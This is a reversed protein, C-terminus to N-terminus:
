FSIAEFLSQYRRAVKNWNAIEDSYKKGIKGMQELKSESSADIQSIAKVWGNKSKAIYGSKETENQNAQLIAERTAFCNEDVIVPTNQNWAEYLVRSFSENRSPIAVAKARKLFLNKLPSELIGLDKIHDSEFSCSGTGALALLLNSSKNERRFTQFAEILEPVNKEACKKGLYLIYNSSLVKTANGSLNESHISESIESEIGEYVTHCKHEHTKGFLNEFVLKEGDSNFLIKGCQEFSKSVLRLYAYTEDHLCPQIWVKEKLILALHVTIPFLYPMALIALYDNQNEVAFNILDTSNINNEWYIFENHKSIPYVESSLEEAKFSLLKEVVLDFKKSNRKDVKFRRVNLGSEVKLGRAHFDEDWSHHFSRSCTSWIEIPVGIEQLHKAIQSAQAEAGGQINEGFWTIFLAIKKM